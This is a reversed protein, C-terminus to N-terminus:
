LALTIPPRFHPPFFPDSTEPGYETVVHFAIIPLTVCYFHLWPTSISDARDRLTNFAAQLMWYCLSKGSGTPPSFFFDNGNIFCHLALEQHKRVEKFNLQKLSASYDRTALGHSSRNMWYQYYDDKSVCLKAQVRVLLERCTGIAKLFNFVKPPTM